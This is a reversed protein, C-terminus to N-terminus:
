AEPEEEKRGEEAESSRKSEEKEDVGGMSAEMEKREKGEEKRGKGEEKRVKGEEKGEKGLEEKRGKREEKRVKAGGREGEKWSGKGEGRRRGKRRIADVTDEGISQRESSLGYEEEISLSKSAKRMWRKVGLPEDDDDDKREKPADKKNARLLRFLMHQNRTDSHSKTSPVCCTIYEEDRGTGPPGRKMSIYGDKKVARQKCNVYFIDSSNVWDTTDVPNSHRTRRSHLTMKTKADKADLRLTLPGSNNGFTNVPAYLYRSIPEIGRDKLPSAAMYMISFEYPNEGDENSSIFFDSSDKIDTTGVVRFDPTVKLFITENHCSIVFPGALQFLFYSTVHIAVM